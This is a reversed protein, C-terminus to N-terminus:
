RNRLVSDVLSKMKPDINQEDANTNKLLASDIYDVGDRKKILSAGTEDEAAELYELDGSRQSFFSYYPQPLTAQVVTAPRKVERASKKTKVSDPPSQKESPPATTKGPNEINGSFFEGFPSSVELKLNSKPPEVSQDVAAFEIQRAIEDVNPQNDPPIFAAESEEPVNQYLNEDKSDANAFEEVSYLPDVHSVIANLDAASPIFEGYDIIDWEAMGGGAGLVDGTIGDFAVDDFPDQELIDSNFPPLKKEPEQEDPQETTAPKERAASAGATENWNTLEAWIESPDIVAAEGALNLWAADDSVSDRAEGIRATVEAGKAPGDDVPELEEIGDYSEGAGTVAEKVPGDDVPELEEIGDYGEGAGASAEKAPGDDVPELEEIDDYSDDIGAVDDDLIYNDNDHIKESEDTQGHNKFDYSDGSYSLKSSGLVRGLIAELKTEDFTTIMGTRSGIAALLSDWSRNFFSHIYEEIGSGKKIKIGRCLENKVDERRQELERRWVAWDMDGMLQYYEHMLSVQLEKLRSQVIAVADPKANLILFTIVFLTIFVAAILLAKLMNPFAFLKESVVHGVFIGHSTKSSLLTLPDSLRVYIRSIATGGSAWVSAIAEKVPVIELLPIGVVIGDPDSIVSVNDTVKIHRNEALLESFARISVSFLAEGRRIDMSDYFPYYFVIRENESDFLIHEVGIGSLMQQDFPRYGEVEPYNKYLITGDNTIAQDDASTSYHIRNGSSDVFRVWQLGPLSVGLSAFIRSREYIDESSQNVWFSRRIANELLIDSFRKQLDSIYNDIFNTDDALKSNLENLRANDYFRTEIIDFLSTFAFVCFGAFLLVSILLSIAAKRAIQL